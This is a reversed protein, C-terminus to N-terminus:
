IWAKYGDRMVEDSLRKNTRLTVIIKEDITRPSVLDFYTVPWNQGIRHARDESQVRDETSFTNSLYIVTNAATLTLGIGGTRVQGVFVRINPDNQFAMRNKIREDEPTDGYFLVHEIGAKKLAEHMERIEFKFKCWVIVKGDVEEIMDIAEEIKPPFGDEIKHIGTQENTLPDIIPLYGATIQQLRLMQTLITTAEVRHLSDLYIISQRQMERYAVEMAKTLYINRKVYTKPPLDLCQEKLVRFSVGAIKDGLEKLNQYRVPIRVRDNTQVTVAYRASFETFTAIGLIDPDLFGFQSFAKLPSKIVPTGSAIRALVAKRRIDTAVKTRKAARNGIRTSEDVVLMVKRRRMVEQLIAISKPSHLGEVSISLIFLRSRDAMTKHFRLWYDKQLASPNAFFAGRSYRIDPPMHKRVEDFEADNDGDYGNCWNTKVSNPAIIVLADITGNRFNHSADDLIVKTKGTGQDMLYAFVERDRGLILAKRQHEFPPYKFPVSSLDVNLDVEGNSVKRRDEEKENARQWAKEAYEDWALHPMNRRVYEM